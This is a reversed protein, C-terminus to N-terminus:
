GFSDHVGIIKNLFITLFFIMGLRIMVVKSICGWVWRKIMAEDSSGTDFTGYIPKLRM